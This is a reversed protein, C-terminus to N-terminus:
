QRYRQQEHQRQRRHPLLLSFGAGEGGRLSYCGDDDDDDAAAAAAVAAAVAAPSGRPGTATCSALHLLPEGEGKKLLTFFASVEDGMEDLLTLDGAGRSGSSSGSSSGGNGISRSSGRTANKTTSNSSSRPIPLM